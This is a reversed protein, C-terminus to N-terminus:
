AGSRTSCPRRIATSGTATFWASRARPKGKRATTRRALREELRPAAGGASAGDDRGGASGGASSTPGAGGGPGAEEPFHPDVRGLSLDESSGCAFAATAGLVMM